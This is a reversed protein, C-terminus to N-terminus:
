DLSKALDFVASVTRWNRATADVGLYREAREALKSTGFREPTHLYFIRGKLAFSESKAKIGNLSEIDPNKPLEALFFLHLSKPDAIADRFPNAEMARQLETRDLVLVRPEFGRAASVANQIRTAMRAADTMPSRFAVNGSQIYTKVDRCRAKELLAALQKMPLLKNGGVNIGRFLAIWTNM